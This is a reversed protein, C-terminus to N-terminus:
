RPRGSSVEHVEAKFFDLLRQVPVLDPQAIAHADNLRTAPWTRKGRCKSHNDIAAVFISDAVEGATVASISVAKRATQM